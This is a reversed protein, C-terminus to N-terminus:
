TINHATMQYYTGRQEMLETHTGSEILRTKGLVYIVDCTRITSLRHAISLSTRTSYENQVNELVQQVIQENYSDMASTAEDLLLIKPQRLLARAIAIRQKEGGSMQNGKHGVETDYGQPLKLIFEHINSKIAADVVADHSINEQAYAINQKITMNFLIPEQSVLGFCSRLWHINLQRIDVGDLLVKGNTVDYFRELLQIITSKGCGSSGVIAVRQGPKIHLQFKDLVRNAPRTPYIFEVHDFKIDGQFNNLIQGEMSGNDIVPTREFLHFFSKAASLSAGIEATMSMIIKLSQLCFIVIGFVMLINNTQIENEEYLYLTFGYLITMVFCRTSWHIGFIFASIISYNRHIKYVQHILKTYQRLFEQEITLIKVTRINEITQITLSSTQELISSTQKSLRSQSNVEIFAIIFVFLTSLFIIPSLQWHIISGFLLSSIIMTLSEFILGLRTGTMQQISLADSALRICISGSSNEPLDFFSIEQRLLYSFAKIRIRETLKSGSIAFCGFQLIRMFMVIVGVFIIFCSYKIVLYQRQSFSCYEFTSITKALLIAFVPIIGGFCICAICGILITKWEPSNMKMLKLFTSRKFLPLSDKAKEIEVDITDNNFSKIREHYNREDEQRNILKDNNEMLNTEQDYVMQRYKSEEKDMLTKHTGEEIVSGNSIVYIRNANRITTLRHAIIITTRGKYARELADQVIKENANDLASTAEDLLLISPQKILTRALAVRQKEGGSLQIGREGVLTEYKSPLQMIFDHANAQRAAEEIEDKTANLKGYRINEYISVNFLIPEQNVVGIQQRLQKVDYENISRENITIEGSSIDYFRLLLSLCTSKGSGSSGVLATTEGARAIITFNDLVSRDKRSPYSFTVNKFQIDGNVNLIKDDLKNNIITEMELEKMHEIEDILRFVPTAAVRAEVYSEIFPALLGLLTIGHVFGLVIVLIDSINLKDHGEYYILISGFIFGFAYLLCGYLYSWGVFFGSVIGKRISTWRSPHLENEYRRQEFMAGNLSLVTRLSSFVEQVIQGAKSYSELERATEKIIHRQLITQFLRVRIRSTQRKATLDFMLHQLFACFLEFCGIAILLYIKSLVDDHFMITSSSSSSSLLSCMDTSGSIGLKHLRSFNGLNLEIGLPCNPNNSSINKQKQNCHGGFSQMAFVGTIRGFLILYASYCIGHLIAACFGIFLLVYDLRNAFRFLQFLNVSNINKEQDNNDTRLQDDFTRFSPVYTSILSRIEEDKRGNESSSKM